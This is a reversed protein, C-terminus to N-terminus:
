LLVLTARWHVRATMLLQSHAKWDSPSGALELTQYALLWLAESLLHSGSPELKLFHGFSVTEQKHQPSILVWVEIYVSKCLIDSPSCCFWACGNDHLAPIHPYLWDSWIHHNKNSCCSQFGISYSNLWYIVLKWNSDCYFYEFHLYNDLCKPHQGEKREREGCMSHVTLPTNCFCARCTRICFPSSTESCSVPTEQLHCM